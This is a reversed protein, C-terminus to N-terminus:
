LQVQGMRADELVGAETAEKIILAEYAESRITSKVPFPEDVSELNLIKANYPGDPKFDVCQVLRAINLFLSRQALRYGVCIRRGGGFQWLGHSIDMEHGDMWREPYFAEPKEFENGVPVENITFGTGAPFLYGEFEIDQSAVHDPTLIFIPRWRLVEKAIACIFRLNDMDSLVPLRAREGVGCISDVDARAKRFPEPYELMAMVMINLAERTTDSGAEILQMALYMCDQDDGKYRTEENLLVDRVFSPPATGNDVQKRVPDWWSRYVDHNWKGLAEWHSRWVQLFKPLRALDPFWDIVSSGISGVFFTVCNQLDALEQTSKGLREGLAIRHIVSNAYRYHHKYWLHPKFLYEAMMQTSELEQWEGYQKLSTGNLLSHMVRRREMWAEQPLILSRGDRSVIGSSIPMPSRTNTASGRKAIIESVVRSSNLFIWTKSGLHVTTMEGYTALERLYKHDPDGRAEKLKHLSGIIPLGPPGPPLHPKRGDRFRRKGVPEFYKAVVVLLLVALCLSLALFSAAPVREFAYSLYPTIQSIM